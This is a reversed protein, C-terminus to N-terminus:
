ELKVGSLSGWEGGDADRGHGAHLDLAQGQELVDRRPAFHVPGMTEIAVRFDRGGPKAKKLAVPVTRNLVTLADYMNATFTSRSSKGYASEYKTVFDTAPAKSPNSAPLLEPVVASGSVVFGGEV